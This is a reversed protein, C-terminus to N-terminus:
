VKFRLLIIYNHKACVVLCPSFEVITFLLYGYFLIWNVVCVCVCMIISMGILHIIFLCFLTQLWWYIGHCHCTHAGGGGGCKIKLYFLTCFCNIGDQRSRHCVSVCVCLIKILSGSRKWLLIKKKRSLMPMRECQLEATNYNRCLSNLHNNQQQQSWENIFYRNVLWLKIYM